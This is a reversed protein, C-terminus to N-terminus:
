LWSKSPSYITVWVLVAEYFKACDKDRHKIIERINVGDSSWPTNHYLM